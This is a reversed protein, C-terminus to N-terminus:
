EHYSVDVSDAQLRIRDAAGVPSVDAIVATAVDYPRGFGRATVTAQGRRDYELWQVTPEVAGRSSELVVAARIHGRPAGLRFRIPDSGSPVFRVYLHGWPALLLPPGSRTSDFPLSTIPPRVFAPTARVLQSFPGYGYIGAQDLYSAVGWDAFVQAATQHHARLLADVARLGTRRDRVLAQIFSPGFRVALYTVFLGARGYAVRAHHALSRSNSKLGTVQWTPEAAAAQVKLVDRQTYYGNVLQAYFSLGENLWDDEVSYHHDLVRLRFEILHQLEHAMVEATDALKNRDPMSSPLRVYLVNGHNRHLPDGHRSPVLDNDDFYGMTIGDLPALLVTVPRLGRPSGFLRVDTPYIHQDFVDSLLRGDSTSVSGPPAYVTVYRGMALVDARIYAWGSARNVWFWRTYQTATAPPAASLASTILTLALAALGLGRAPTIRSVGYALRSIVM